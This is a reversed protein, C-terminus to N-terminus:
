QKQQLAPIYVKSLGRCPAITPGMSRESSLTNKLRCLWYMPLVPRLWCSLPPLLWRTIILRLAENSEEAMERKLGMFQYECQPCHGQGLFDSSLAHKHCLSLSLSLSISICCAQPKVVHFAVIVAINLRNVDM